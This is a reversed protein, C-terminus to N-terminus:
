EEPQVDISENFVMHVAVNVHDQLNYGVQLEKIIPIAHKELEEKPGVGSLMLIQLLSYLFSIVQSLYTKAFNM